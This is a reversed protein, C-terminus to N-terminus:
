YSDRDVHSGRVVVIIFHRKRPPSIRAFLNTKKNLDEAHFFTVDLVILSQAVDHFFRSKSDTFLLAGLDAQM